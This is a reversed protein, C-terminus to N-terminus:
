IGNLWVVKEIKMKKAADDIMMRVRAQQMRGSAYMLVLGFPSAKSALFTREHLAMILNKWNTALGWCVVRGDALRRGHPKVYNEAAVEDPDLGLAKLPHVAGELRALLYPKMITDKIYLRVNQDPVFRSVVGGLEPDRSWNEYHQTKQRDPLTAWKMEDALVWLKERLGDFIRDPLKM